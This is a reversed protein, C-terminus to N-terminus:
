TVIAYSLPSRRMRKVQLMEGGGVRYELHCLIFNRQQMHRHKSPCKSKTYSVMFTLCRETQWFQRDLFSPTHPCDCGHQFVLLKHQTYHSPFYGWHLWHKNFPRCHGPYGALQDKTCLPDSDTWIPPDIDSAGM